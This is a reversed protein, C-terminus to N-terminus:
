RMEVGELMGVKVDDDLLQVSFGLQM